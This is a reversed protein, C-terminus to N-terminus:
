AGAMLRYVIKAVEGPAEIMAASTVGPLKTVPIRSAIKRDLAGSGVLVVTNTRNLLDRPIPSFTYRLVDATHETLRATREDALRAQAEDVLWDTMAADSVFFRLQRKVRERDSTLSRLKESARGTLFNQVFPVDLLTRVVRQRIGSSERTVIWPSLLLVPVSLRMRDVYRVVPKAATFHAVIIGTNKINALMAFLAEEYNDSHALDLTDLEVVEEDPLRQKLPRWTEPGGLYPAAGTVVVIAGRDAM